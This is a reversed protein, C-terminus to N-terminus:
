RSGRFLFSSCGFVGCRMRGWFGPLREAEGKIGAPPRSEEVVRAMELMSREVSERLTKAGGRLGDGKVSLGFDDREYELSESTMEDARKLMEVWVRITSAEIKTRAAERRM